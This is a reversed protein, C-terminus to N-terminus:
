FIETYYTSGSYSGTPFVIKLSHNNFDVNCENEIQTPDAIYLSQKEKSLNTIMLVCPKDVSISLHSNNFSGEKYFIMQLIDNNRDIVAQLTSTNSLIDINAEQAFSYRSQPYIAYAYSDLIHEVVLKFVPLKILDSSYSENILSWRGEQSKNSLFIFNNDELIEYYLGNHYVSSIGSISVSSENPLSYKNKKLNYTVDGKLACQNITTYLKGQNSTCNSGLCVVFDDFCFYGKNSSVSYDNYILSYVSYDHNYVGGSFKSKGPQGWEKAFPPIDATATVGPIKSWDWVPFINYYEDGKIRMSTSGCSLLSGLLNENNGLEPRSIRESTGGVSFNIDKTSYFLYDSKYLMRISKKILYNHTEDGSIRKIASKYIVGNHPDLIILDKLVNIISYQKLYGPRSLGRGCTNWDLYEGRITNLYSNCIYDTITSLSLYDLSYSTSQLYRAFLILGSFFDSGYGTMYRIYNSLFSGDVCLGTGPVSSKLEDFILKVNSSIISDSEILVGRYFHYKAIDIRNAGVYNSPSLVNLQEAIAERHLSSIDNNLFLAIEGLYKCKGITNFWWNAHIFDSTLWYSLAINIKELSESDKYHPSEKSSHSLAIKWIRELHTLAPWVSLRENSEYSLDSWFGQNSLNSVFQSVENYFDNKNEIHDFHTIIINSTILDFETQNKEEIQIDKENCSNFLFGLFFVLIYKKFKHANM